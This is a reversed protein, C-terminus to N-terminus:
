ICKMGVVKLLKGMVMKIFADDIIGEMPYLSAKLIEVTSGSRLKDISSEKYADISKIVSRSTGSGSKPIYIDIFVEGDEDLWGQLIEILIEDDFSNFYM